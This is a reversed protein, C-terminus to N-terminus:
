FICFASFDFFSFFLFSFSLFLYLVFISFCSLEGAVGVTSLVIIDSFFHLFLLTLCSGLDSSFLSMRSILLLFPIIKM